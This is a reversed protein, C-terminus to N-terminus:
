ELKWNSYNGKFKRGIERALGKTGPSVRMRLERLRAETTERNRGACGKESEKQRGSYIEGLSTTKLSIKLQQLVSHQFSLRIYL